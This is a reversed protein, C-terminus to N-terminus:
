KRGGKVKNKTKIKLKPNKYKKDIEDLLDNIDETKKPPLYYDDDRNYFGFHRYGNYTVGSYYTPNECYKDKEDKIDKILDRTNTCLIKIDIDASEYITNKALDYIFSTLSGSKNMIMFIYYDNKPLVQLFKDYMNLDTGSPSTGMNVHSHGQFRINNFVDDDEINNLWDQYKEQDTDVTASRIIQPYLFVDKIYYWNQEVNREVIGHWAIEVDTDRVYLMMKLYAQSSIFITPRAAGVITNDFTTSFDIRNSTCRSLGNIYETFKEIAAKKFTEDMNIKKM